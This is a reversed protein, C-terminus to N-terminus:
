TMALPRKRTPPPFREDLRALDESTLALDLADLNERLHREQGAKPIAM